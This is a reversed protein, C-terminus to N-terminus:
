LCLTTNNSNLVTYNYNKREQIASSYLVWAEKYANLHLTHWSKKQACSLNVQFIGGCDIEVNISAQETDLFKTLFNDNNKCGFFKRDNVYYDDQLYLYLLQISFWIFFSICCFHMLYWTQTKSTWVLITYLYLVRKFLTLVFAFWGASLFMWCCNNPICLWARKIKCLLLM